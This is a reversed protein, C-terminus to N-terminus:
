TKLIDMVNNVKVSEGYTLSIMIPNREFSTGVGTEERPLNGVVLTRPKGRM